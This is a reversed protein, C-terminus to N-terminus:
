IIDCEQIGMGQCFLYFPPSGFHAILERKDRAGLGRLTSLWVWYKLESM